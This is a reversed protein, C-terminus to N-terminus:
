QGHHERAYESEWEVYWEKRLDDLAERTADTHLKDLIMYAKFQNLIEGEVLNKMMIHQLAEVVLHKGLKKDLTKSLISEEAGLNHMMMCYIAVDLWNGKNPKELHEVLQEVLVEKPCSEWGQRGKARGKRMKDKMQSSFCEIHIDDTHM